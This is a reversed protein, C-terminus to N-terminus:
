IGLDSRVSATYDTGLVTYIGNLKDIEYLERGAKVMKIRLVELEVKGDVSEGAKFKGQDNGKLMGRVYVVVPETKLTGGAGDYSQQSGRIVLDHAVPKMLEAADLEVTRFAIELSMSDFHGLVPVELSGGIGAGEVAATQPSISPLTIEGTGILRSNGLYIAHDVLVTPIRNIENAM